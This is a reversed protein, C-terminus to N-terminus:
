LLLATLRSRVVSFLYWPFIEFFNSFLSSLSFSIHYLLSTAALRVPTASSRLVLKFIVNESFVESFLKEFFTQFFVQCVFSFTTYYTLRNAIFLILFRYQM